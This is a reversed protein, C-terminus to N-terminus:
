WTGGGKDVGKKAKKRGETREGAGNGETYPMYLPDAKRCWWYKTKKLFKGKFFEKKLTEWAGCIYYLLIDDTALL